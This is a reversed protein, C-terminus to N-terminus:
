FWYMAQMFNHEVNMEDNTNKIPLCQGFTSTKEKDIVLHM